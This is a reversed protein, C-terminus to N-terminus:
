RARGGAAVWSALRDIEEDAFADVDLRVFRELGLRNAAMQALGKYGLANATVFIDASRLSEATIRGESPRVRFGDREMLRAFPRYRGTATHLNTHGEDFAIRPWPREAFAPSAVAPRYAADAEQVPWITWVLGAAGIALGARM